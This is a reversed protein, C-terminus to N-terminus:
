VCKTHVIAAGGEQYDKKTLWMPKFAELCTLISGGIFTSNICSSSGTSVTVPIGGNLAQLEKQLREAMGHFMTNGGSLVIHSYLYEQEMNNETACKAITDRICELLSTTLFFETTQKRPAGLVIEKGDPLKYPKTEPAADKDLAVYCSSEKIQAAIDKSVEVGEQQLLERLKETLDSGGISLRTNLSAILNGAKSPAVQTVGHGSSVALGDYLGSAYLTLIPQNALYISSANFTDFMVQTMKERDAKDVCVTETLLIPNIAPDAKLEKM